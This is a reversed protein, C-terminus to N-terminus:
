AAGAQTRNIWFHHMSFYLTECVLQVRFVETAAVVINNLGGFTLFKWCASIWSGLDDGTAVSTLLRNSKILVILEVLAGSGVILYTRWRSLWDRRRLLQLCLVPLLLLAFPGTLSVIALVGLEIWSPPDSEPLCLYIALALGLIWQTNTISFFVEGNNPQLLVLAMAVSIWVVNLGRSQLRREIVWALLALALCSGFFLLYPAVALPLPIALLTFLRPFTHLFGQYPTYISQTANSYVQNLFVIADETWLSEAISHV